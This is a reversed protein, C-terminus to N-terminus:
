YGFLVREEGCHGNRRTTMSTSSTASSESNFPIAAARAPGASACGSTRGCPLANPRVTPLRLFRSREFRCRLRRRLSRRHSEVAWSVHVHVSTRGGEAGVVIAAPMRRDRAIRHVRMASRGADRRPLALEDDHEQRPVDNPTRLRPLVLSQAIPEVQQDLNCPM